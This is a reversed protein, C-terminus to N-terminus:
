RPTLTYMNIYYHAGCQTSQLLQLAKNKIQRKICCGRRGRNQRSFYMIYVLSALFAFTLHLRSYWLCFLLSSATTCQLIHRTYHKTHQMRFQHMSFHYRINGMRASLNRQLLISHFLIALKVDGQLAFAMDKSASFGQCHIIQWQILCSHCPQACVTVKARKCYKYSLDLLQCM